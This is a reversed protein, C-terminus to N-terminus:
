IEGTMSFKALKNIKYPWMNDPNLIDGPPFGAQLMACLIGHRCKGLNIKDWDPGGDDVLAEEKAQAPRCNLYEGTWKIDYWQKGTEKPDLAFTLDAFFYNMVDKSGQGFTVDIAQCLGHQAEMPRGINDVQVCVQKVWTTQRQIDKLRM